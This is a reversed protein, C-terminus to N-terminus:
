RATETAAGGVIRVPAGPTVYPAGRTIVRAGADIGTVAVKDGHLAAIRVRHARATVARGGEVTYLTASDADAEVLADVSVLTAPAGGRVAITAHGVLGAPLADADRLGIEVTYTGTRADAARGVLTVAGRFSRSPLADFRVSASDGVRVRLADRDPLGARLVRGRRAGGLVVIPTGPAVNAGAVGPRQLVLGDEPAVIVAYDRNV